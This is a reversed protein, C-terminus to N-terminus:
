LLNLERARAVCETRNQANLKGFINNLTSEAPDVREVLDNEWIWSTRFGTDAESGNWGSATRDSAVTFGSQPTTQSYL